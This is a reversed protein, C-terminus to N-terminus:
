AGPKKRGSCHARVIPEKARARAHHRAADSTDLPNRRQLTMGCRNCCPTTTHHLSVTHTFPFSSLPLVPSCVRVCKCVCVRACVCVYECVCVCVCVCVCLVCCLVCCVRLVRCAMYVCVCLRPQKNKAWKPVFWCGKVCRRCQGAKCVTGYMSGLYRSM